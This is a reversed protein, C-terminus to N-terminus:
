DGREELRRGGDHDRQWGLNAAGRNRTRLRDQDNAKECLGPSKREYSATLLPHAVVTRAPLHAPRRPSLIASRKERDQDGLM